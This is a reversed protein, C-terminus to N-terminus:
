NALEATLRDAVIRGTTIGILHAWSLAAEPCTAEVTGLVTRQEGLIKVILYTDMADM